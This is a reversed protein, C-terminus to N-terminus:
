RAESTFASESMQYSQYCRNAKGGWNGVISGVLRTQGIGAEFNYRRVSDANPWVFSSRERPIQVICEELAITIGCADPGWGVGGGRRSGM